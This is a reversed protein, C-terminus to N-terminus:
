KAGRTQKGWLGRKGKQAEQELELYPRIDISKEQRDVKGLGLRIMRATMDEGSLYVFGVKSGKEGDKIPKLRVWEGGLKGKLYEQVEPKRDGPVDIGIITVTMEKGSGRASITKPGDIREVIWLYEGGEMPPRSVYFLYGVVLLIIAGFVAWLKWENELRMKAM